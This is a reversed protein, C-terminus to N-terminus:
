YYTWYYARGTTSDYIAVGGSHEGYGAKLGSSIEKSESTERSLEPPYVTESRDISRLYQWRSESEIWRRFDVESLDFSFYITQRFGRKFAIHKASEPLQQGCYAQSRTLGQGQVPPIAKAFYGSITAVAVAILVYGVWRRLTYNQAFPLNVIGTKLAQGPEGSVHAYECLICFRRNNARALILGFALIALGALALSLTFCLGDWPFEKAKSLLCVEATFAAGLFILWGGLIIWALSFARIGAKEYCALACYQNVALWLAGIALPSFFMPTYPDAPDFFRSILFSAVLLYLLILAGGPLYAWFLQSWISESPISEKSSNDGVRKVTEGSPPLRIEIRPRTNGSESPGEIPFQSTGTEPNILVGCREPDLNCFNDFPTQGVFEVDRCCVAFSDSLNDYFHIQGNYESIELEGIGFTPALSANVRFQTVGIFRLTVQSQCDGYLFTITVNRNLSTSNGQYEIQNVFHFFLPEFTDGM